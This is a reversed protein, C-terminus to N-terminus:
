AGIQPAPITSDPTADDQDAWREAPVFLGDDTLLWWGPWWENPHLFAPETTPDQDERLHLGLAGALASHAGIWQHCHVCVGILNAPQNNTGQSRNVRHHTQVREGACGPLRPECRGGSRRAVIAYGSAETWRKPPATV